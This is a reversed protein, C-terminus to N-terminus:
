NLFEVLQGLQVIDNDSTAEGTCKITIAAGDDQTATGTEIDIASAPTTEFVNLQAVYDQTDTGTSFVEAVARWAGDISVTFAYTLIVQSGFYIKLTKTDANNPFTGWATIRVGKGAVSMADAPLSYTILDDEGVGINGVQTTDVSAKLVAFAGINAAGIEFAVPEAKVDTNNVYLYMTAGRPIVIGTQGNVLVTLTFDGTTNNFVVYDWVASPVEVSRNGSLAGTFELIKVRAEDDTLTVAGSGGIAKSLRSEM